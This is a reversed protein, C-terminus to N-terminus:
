RGTREYYTWCGDEFIRVYGLTEVQDRYDTEYDRELIRSTGAMHEGDGCLYVLKIRAGRTDTPGLCKTKIYM